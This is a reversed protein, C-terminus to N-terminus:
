RLRGVSGGLMLLGLMLILVSTALELWALGSMV